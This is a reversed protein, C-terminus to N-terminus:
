GMKTKNQGARRSVVRRSGAIPKNGGGSMERTRRGPAEGSGEVHALRHHEKLDNWFPVAVDCMNCTYSQGGNGRWFLKYDKARVPLPKYIRNGGTTTNMDGPSLKKLLVRVKKTSATGSSSTARQSMNLVTLLYENHLHVADASLLKKSNANFQSRTVKM